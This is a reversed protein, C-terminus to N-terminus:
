DIQKRLVTPIDFDDVNSWNPGFGNPDEDRAQAIAKRYFPLDQPEERIPELPQVPQSEEVVEGATLPPATVVVSEQLNFGTAIVTIKMEEEMADDIVLGSIINASPDVADAILLGRLRAVM